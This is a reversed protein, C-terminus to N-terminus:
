PNACNQEPFRAPRDHIIGTGGNGQWKREDVHERFPLCLSTQVLRGVAHNRDRCATPLRTRYLGPVIERAGQQWRRDCIIPQPKITDAMGVVTGEPRMKRYVSFRISPSGAGHASVPLGRRQGEPKEGRDEEGMEAVRQGAFWLDAFRILFLDVRLMHDLFGVGTKVDANGSGDLCLDIKIKTENTNRELKGSRVM